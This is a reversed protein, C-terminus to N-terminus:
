DRLPRLARPDFTGTRKHAQLAIALFVASVTASVVVDTLALAQVVADVTPPPSPAAQIVPATAGDQYGIALLLVYTASQMVGMCLVLHVLDRSTIVAYLSVVILWVAVLYPFVSM